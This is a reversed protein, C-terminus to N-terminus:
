LVNIFDVVCDGTKDIKRVADLYRLGSKVKEGHEVRSITQKKLQKKLVALRQEFIEGDSKSAKTGNVIMSVGYDYASKVEAIYRKLKDIAGHELHEQKHLVKAVSYMMSSCEDSLNEITDVIRRFRELLLQDRHNATPLLSCQILFETLQENMEDIYNEANDLQEVLEDPSSDNSLGVIVVDFMSQVRKSMHMIEQRIQPIYFDVGYNNKPAVFPAIYHLDQDSHKDPIIKSVVAAIVNVFPLFILTATVNFITHLMAIHMTINEGLDASGPVCMDVLGLFPGFTILAIVTGATNFGVHVLATRKANQTGGFSSMIADVTSGINSGLVLSASLEWSIVGKSAMTLVIATMASSSHILSTIFAGILVGLLIGGFGWQSIVKLFSVSEPGLNLCDSIFGLGLFLLAFGLFCDSFNHISSKKLYKLLFGVGFIPISLSAINFSFGLLSVIWATITTGINAGFIVGIAQPLTLLAANVFGVVMVTTAGSSQIIATVAMGTLVATFRNGTIKQLLKQLGAGAGKQIGSSMLEMGYLLICLSGVFQFIKLIIGIMM